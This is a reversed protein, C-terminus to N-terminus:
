KIGKAQLARSEESLFFSDLSNKGVEKGVERILLVIQVELRLGSNEARVSAKENGVGRVEVRKGM